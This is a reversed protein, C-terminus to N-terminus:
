KRGDLDRIFRTDCEMCQFGCQSASKDFELAPDIYDFQHFNGSKKCVPCEMSSDNKRAKYFKHLYKWDYCLEILDPRYSNFRISKELDNVQEKTLM